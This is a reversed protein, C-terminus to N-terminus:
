HVPVFSCMGNPSICMLCSSLFADCTSGFGPTGAKRQASLVSVMQVCVALEHQMCAVTHEPTHETDCSGCYSEM